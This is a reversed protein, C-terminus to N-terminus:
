RGAFNEESSKNQVEKIQSMPIEFGDVNLFTEGNRVRVSSVIGSVINGSDDEWSVLKNVMAIARTFAFEKSLTKFSETLENMQKLSTFQAMQSIFEKDDLPRTPDQTKLQTIMLKMFDAQDLANKSVVKQEAKLKTNFEDVRYNLTKIEQPSLM